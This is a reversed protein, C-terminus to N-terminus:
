KKKPTNNYREIGKHVIECWEIIDIIHKPQEFWTGSFPMGFGMYWKQWINYASMFNEDLYDKIEGKKLTGQPDTAAGVFMLSDLQREKITHLKSAWGDNLLWM